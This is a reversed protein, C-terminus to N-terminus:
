MRPSAPRYGSRGQSSCTNQAPRRLLGFFVLRRRANQRLRIRIVIRPVRNQQRVHDLAKKGAPPDKERAPRAGALGRQDPPDGVLEHLAALVDDQRGRRANGGALQAVLGADVIRSVALTRRRQVGGGRQGAALHGVGIASSLPSAALESAGGDDDDVLDAHDVADREVPEEFADLRFGTDQHYAVEELKRGHRAVFLPQRVEREVARREGIELQDVQLRHQPLGLRVEDFEEFVEAVAPDIGGDQFARLAFEVGVVGDEEAGIALRVGVVLSPDVLNVGRRDVARALDLFAVALLRDLPELAVRPGLGGELDFLLHPDQADLIVLVQDVAIQAGHDIDAGLALRAGLHRVPDVDLEVAVSEAGAPEVGQLELLQHPVGSLVGFFDLERGHLVGEHRGVGQRDVLGLAHREVDDIDIARM